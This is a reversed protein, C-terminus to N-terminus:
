TIEVQIEIRIQITYLLGFSFLFNFLSVKYTQYQISYKIDFSGNTSIPVLGIAMVRNCYLYGLSLDNLDYVM